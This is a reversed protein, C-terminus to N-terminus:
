ARDYMCAQHVGCSMRHRKSRTHIIPPFPLSSPHCTNCGRGLPFPHPHEEVQLFDSEKALGPDDM